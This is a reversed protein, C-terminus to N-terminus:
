LMTFRKNQRFTRTNESKYGNKLGEKKLGNIKVTYNEGYIGLTGGSEKLGVNDNHGILWKNKARLFPMDSPKDLPLNTDKPLIVITKFGSEEAKCPTYHLTTAYVEVAEGKELYFAKVKKSDYKGDIIDQRKGLLLVTPTVAVNIESGTHWELGNLKDNYGWCCGIEIPLEGYLVRQAVAYCATDELEKIGAKYMVGKEPMPLEEARAIVESFDLDVIRGYERFKKDTVRYFKLKKNLKKIEEFTM